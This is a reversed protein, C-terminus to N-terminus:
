KLVNAALGAAARLSQEAGEATARDPQLDMMVHIEKSALSSIEDQAADQTVGLREGIVVMGNNVRKPPETYATDNNIACLNCPAVNLQVFPSATARDALRVGGLNGSTLFWRGGEAARNVLFDATVLSVTSDSVYFARTISRENAGIVMESQTIFTLGLGLITLVVLVLLAIIFASGDQRQQATPRSIM